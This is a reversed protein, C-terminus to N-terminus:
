RVNVVNLTKQCDPCKKTSCCPACHLMNTNKHCACDCLHKHLENKCIIMNYPKYDENKSNLIKKLVEFM